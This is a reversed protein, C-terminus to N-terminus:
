SRMRGQSQPPRRCRRGCRSWRVHPRCRWRRGPRGPRSPAGATPGASRCSGASSRATIWTVPAACRTGARKASEELSCTPSMTSAMPLGSPRALLTVSPIMEATPRVTESGCSAPDGPAVKGSTIWVEAAMLGPLDARDPLRQIRRGRGPVLCIARWDWIGVLAGGIVPGMALALGCVATWLGVATDRMREGPYMHRLMSLTGPESAAAGVGMVARGAILVPANPAMACMVSGACFVGVGALMVRKRGFEDGVMGFALM